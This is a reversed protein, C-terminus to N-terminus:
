FRNYSAIILAYPQKSYEFTGVARKFRHNSSITDACGGGAGPPCFSNSQTIHRLRFRSWRSKDNKQERAFSSGADYLLYKTFPSLIYKSRGPVGIRRIILDPSFGYASFALFRFSPQNIQVLRKLKKERTIQAFRERDGPHFRARSATAM